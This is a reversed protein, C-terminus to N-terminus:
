TAPTSAGATTPILTVKYPNPRYVMATSNFAQAVSFVEVKVGEDIRASAAVAPSPYELFYKQVLTPPKGCGYVSFTVLVVATLNALSKYPPRSWAM